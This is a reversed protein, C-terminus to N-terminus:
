RVSDGWVEVCWRWQRCGVCRLLRECRQSVRRVIWRRAFASVPNLLTPRLIQSFICLFRGCKVHCWVLLNIHWLFLLVTAHLENCSISLAKFMIRDHMLICAVNFEFDCVTPVTAHLENCSIFLIDHTIRDHMLICAVNFEFDCVTPVTAHLENCSIFLVGHTTYDHM